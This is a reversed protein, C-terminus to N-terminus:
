SFFHGYAWIAGLIQLALILPIGVIFKLHKTKHRFLYMGAIAGLSGGLLATILLTREAIRWLKKKARYKDALMLLFCAANILILYLLIYKM